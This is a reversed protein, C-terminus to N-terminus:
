VHARGIQQCARIASTTVLFCACGLEDATSLADDPELGGCITAVVDATATDDAVITISAYQGLPQGSTPDLFHSHRIGNISFGKRAGGSTAIGCPDSRFTMLPPENDFPRLPNEVGFLRTHQGFYRMDGGADVVFEVDPYMAAVNESARDVIWGKAMANLDIGSLDDIAIPQEDIIEYAPAQAKQRAEALEIETPLEGRREADRWVNTLHGTNTSFSGLSRQQWDLALALVAALDRSVDVIDGRKWRELESTPDFRNCVSQLRTMEDVVRDDIDDAIVENITDDFIRVDVFTGLLPHHRSVIM